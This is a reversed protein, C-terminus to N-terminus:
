SFLMVELLDISTTATGNGTSTSNITVQGTSGSITINTGAVISTVIGTLRAGSGSFSTATVVGAVINKNTLTQTVGVGVLEYGGVASGDHVVVIKKDSDVTLEGPQGTFVAHQATTGRRFQVGQVM